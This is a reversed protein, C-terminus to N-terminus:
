TGTGKAIRKVHVAYKEGRANQIVVFSVSDGAAVIDTGPLLRFTITEGKQDITGTRKEANVSAVTGKTVDGIQKAMPRQLDALSGSDIEEATLPEESAVLASYGVIIRNKSDSRKQVSQLEGGARLIAYAVLKVDSEAVITDYWICNTPEDVQPRVDRIEFGLESLAKRL